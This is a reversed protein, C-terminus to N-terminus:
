YVISIREASKGTPFVTVLIRKMNDSVNREKAIM